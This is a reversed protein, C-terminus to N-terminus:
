KEKMLGKMSLFFALILGGLGGLFLFYKQFTWTDSITPAELKSLFVNLYYTLLPLVLLGLIIVMSLLVASSRLFRKLMGLGQEIFYLRELKPAVRDLVEQIQRSLLHAEHIQEKTLFTTRELVEDVKEMVFGLEEGLLRVPKKYPYENTFSLYEEARAKLTRFKEAVAGRQERAANTCLGILRNAHSVVDIYGFYAESEMLSKAKMSLAQADAFDAAELLDGYLAFQKQAEAIAAAAQTRTEELLIALQPQVLDAFIALDPDILAQIYYDRDERILNELRQLAAKQRDQHLKVLCDLYHVDNCSPNLALVEATRKAAEGWNGALFALRTLLILVFIKEPQKRCLTLAKKFHTEASSPNHREVELFGLLCHTRFDVPGKDLTAQLLSGASDHDSVRLSDQALWLLGGDSESTTERASNWDDETTNWMIRLFRLQFVRKLEYPALFAIEDEGSVTRAPNPPPDETKRDLLLHKLFLRNIDDVSLYGLRRLTKTIEPLNKSPCYRPEHDQSGCYFCPKHEGQVMALRYRFDPEDIPKLEGGWVIRHLTKGKTRLPEPAVTLGEVQKTILDRADATIYVSGPDIKDWQFEAGVLFPQRHPSEDYLDIVVQVPLPAKSDVADLKKQLLDLFQRILSPASRSEKLVVQVSKDHLIVQKECSDAWVFDEGLLMENWIPVLREGGLKMLPRLYIEVPLAPELPMREDWLVKYATLGEPVAKRHWVNLLEFHVSSLDRTADYIEQSVFIEDGDALNTIKAAVNVVDGYIDKEEVIVKGYHLGVRVRILHAPSKAENHRHFAQQIRIAAKLAEKASFFYAMVSDGLIKLITGGHGTVIPTAMEQHRRLMERGQIDGYSKFYKTSGVIDTFLVAIRRMPDEPHTEMLYSLDIDFPKGASQSNLGM